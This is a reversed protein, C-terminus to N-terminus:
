QIFRRRAFVFKAAVPVLALVGIAGVAFLVDGNVLSALDIDLRCDQRGEAICREFAPRKAQVISDLSAGAISWALTGPIIGVFTTWAFTWTRVNFLAPAINVILFPAVPTLRLFLMLSTANNRFGDAFAQVFGTARDRLVAGFSSRAALFLLTAGATAAIITAAAGLKWGFLFGGTVTMVLAGPIAVATVIVYALMYVGLALPLHASILAELAIKERVIREISLERHVGSLMAAVFLAAIALIPL